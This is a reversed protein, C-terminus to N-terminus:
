RIPASWLPSWWRASMTLSSQWWWLAWEPTPRDDAPNAGPTPQGQRVTGSNRPRPHLADYAGRSEPNALVAYAEGIRKFRQESSPNAANIDPHYQRALRLYAKKVSQQSADRPVGLVAYFNKSCWDQSAV